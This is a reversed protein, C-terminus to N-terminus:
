IKYESELNYNYCRLIHLRFEIIEIFYMIYTNTIYHFTNINWNDLRKIELMNGETFYIFIQFFANCADEENM